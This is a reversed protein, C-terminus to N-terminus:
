ELEQGFKIVSSLQKGTAESKVDIYLLGTIVCICGIVFYSLAPKAKQKFSGLQIM